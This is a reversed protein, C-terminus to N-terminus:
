RSAVDIDRLPCFLAIHPVERLEEVTTPLSPAVFLAVTTVGIALSLATVAAAPRQWRALLWAVLSLAFVGLMTVLPAPIFHIVIHFAFVDMWLHHLIGATLFLADPFAAYVHGAFGAGWVARPRQRRVLAWGTDAAVGIAGGFLAHLWFHFEAVLQQYRWFLYGEVLVVVGTTVANSM